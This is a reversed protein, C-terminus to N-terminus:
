PVGGKPLLSHAISRLRQAVPRSRRELFWGVAELEADTVPWSPPICALAPAIDSRSLGALADGLRRLENSDLDDRLWPAEHADDVHAQLTTTSWDPGNPLYHGHDHSYLRREEPEAYLWQPDSGFCWDYLAFVGAHRVANEDRDVYLLTRDEQVGSVARSGHAFGPRLAHGPRFEWGAIDNPITVISTECVPAGILGGVRGIIAETVTVRERQCNNLAKVWWQRSQTDAALFAGSGGDTGQKIPVVIVPPDQPNSRRSLAGSWDTLRISVGYSYRQAADGGRPLNVALKCGVRGM